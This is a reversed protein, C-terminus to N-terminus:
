VNRCIKKNEMKECRTKMKKNAPSKEADAQETGGPQAKRNKCQCEKSMVTM